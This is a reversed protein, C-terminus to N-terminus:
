VRVDLGEPHEVGLGYALGQFQDAGLLEFGRQLLWRDGAIGTRDRGIGRKRGIDIVLAVAVDGGAEDEDVIPHQVVVLRELAEANADPALDYDRAVAGSPAPQLGLERLIVARDAANDVGVWGLVTIGDVLSIGVTGHARGVTHLAARYEVHTEIGAIGQRGADTRGPVGLTQPDGVRRGDHLNGHQGDGVGVGLNKESGQRALDSRGGPAARQRYGI